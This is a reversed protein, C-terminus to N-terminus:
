GLSEYAIRPSGDETYIIGRESFGEKILLHRMIANDRHTDIRIHPCLQRAKEIATHLMGSLKGDQGIRHIVAYPADSLWSGEIVHYTPDDDVSLYFAGHLLGDDGTVAYLKGKAIDALIKERSPYGGAWQETNGSKRMIARAKDYIAMLTDIADAKAEKLEMSLM